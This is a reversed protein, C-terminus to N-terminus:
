RRPFRQAPRHPPLLWGRAAGPRLSSESPLATFRFAESGAPPIFEAAVGSVPVTLNIHLSLPFVSSVFPPHYVRRLNSDIIQGSFQFDLALSDQINQRLDPDRFLLSVGTGDGHLFRLLHALVEVSLVRSWCARGATGCTRPRILFDLGLNVQGVDGLRPIHQFQQLLLLCRSSRRPRAGLRCSRRRDRRRRSRGLGGRGQSRRRLRYRRRRAYDPRGRLRRNSRYIAHRFRRRFRFRRGSRRLRDLLRLGDFSRLRGLRSHRRRRLWHGGRGRSGRLRRGRGESRRRRHRRRRRGRRGYRNM